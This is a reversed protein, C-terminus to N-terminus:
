QCNLPDPFIDGEDHYYKVNVELLTDVPVVCQFSAMYILDEIYKYQNVFVGQLKLSGEIGLLLLSLM